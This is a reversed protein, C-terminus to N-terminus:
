TETEEDIAEDDEIFLGFNIVFANIEETISKGEGYAIVKITTINFILENFIFVHEDITTNKLQNDIYYEVKEVEFLETENVEVEISIPGIILAEYDVDGLFPSIDFIPSDWLYFIGREPKKIISPPKESVIVTVIGVDYGGNNDTINYSFVDTGVFKQDPTYKIINGVIEVTGNNPQTQIKNLVITDGDIDKDNFLADIVNDTSNEYVSEIDNVAVPPHNVHIVYVDIYVTATSYAGNGDSINYVFSDSGNYSLDPNYIIIDSNISVNGHLPEVEIGEITLVDEDVDNDNELVHIDVSTNVPTFATDDVAVPNDNVAEVYITAEATDQELGDSIRYVLADTGTYNEDPSYIITDGDIYADGHYPGSDVSVLTLTDDDEDTDNSLVELINDTSDELVNYYDDNAVPPLNVELINVYITAVDKEELKDSIMYEFSDQGTFGPNPTYYVYDQSYTITGNEPDSVHEIKIEDGLDEDVDNELVNLINDFSDQLVNYYDNNAVPPNNVPKPLVTVSATDNDSVPFEQTISSVLFGGVARALNDNVGTNIALADFEIRITDGINFNEFKWLLMSQNDDPQHPTANGNYSLIDPLVDTIVLKTFNKEGTNEVDIRFRVTENEEIVTTEEWSTTSKDFVKKEITLLANIDDPNTLIHVTVSQQQILSIEEISREYEHLNIELTDIEQQYAAQEAELGEIEVLMHQSLVTNSEVLNNLDNLQSAFDSSSERLTELAINHDNIKAELETKTIQQENLQVNLVQRVEFKSDKLTMLGSLDLNATTLDDNATQLEQNRQIIEAEIGSKQELLSDLNQEGQDINQLAVELEASIMTLEAQKSSLTQGQGAIFVTKVNVIQQSEGIQIELSNLQEEKAAKLSTLEAITAEQSQIDAEFQTKQLTYTDINAELNSIAVISIERQSSLEDLNEQLSTKTEQNIAKLAQINDLEIQHAVQSEYLATVDSNITAMQLETQAIAEELSTKESQLSAIELELTQVSVESQDLISQLNAQNAQNALIQAQIDDLAQTNVQKQSLLSSISNEKSAIQIEILEKQDEYNALQSKILSIQDALNQEQLALQESETVFLTYADRNANIDLGITTLTNEYYQQHAYLSDRDAQLSLIASNLQTEQSGLITLQQEFGTIKTESITEDNYLQSLAGQVSAVEAEAVKVEQELNLINAEKDSLLAMLDNMAQNGEFLAALLSDYEAQLALRINLESDLTLQLSYELDIQEQLLSQKTPINESIAELEAQIEAISLQLGEIEAQLTGIQLTTQDSLGQTLTSQQTISTIDNGLIIQQAELQNLIVQISAKESTAVLKQNNLESIAADSAGIQNTIINIEEDNAQLLLEQYQQDLLNLADIEATLTQQLNICLDEAATLEIQNNELALITTALSQEFTELDVNLSAIEAVAAAINGEINTKEEYLIELESDIDQIRTECEAANVLKEDLRINLNDYDNELDIQNNVLVDKQLLCAKIIHEKHIIQSSLDNILLVKKEIDAQAQIIEEENLEPEMRLITLHEQLDTLDQEEVERQSVLAVHAESEAQIEIEKEAIQSIISDIEVTKDFIKTNLIAIEANIGDFITQEQGKEGEKVFIDNVKNSLEGEFITKEQTKLPIQTNEIFVIDQQLQSQTTELEIKEQELTSQQAQATNLQSQLDSIVDTKQDIQYALESSDQYIQNNNELYEQLLANLNDNNTQEVSLQQNLSVILDIQNQLLVQNQPIQNNTSALLSQKNALAQQLTLLTDAYEQVQLSLQDIQQNKANIQTNKLDINQQKQDQAAEQQQIEQQLEAQLNQAADIRNQIGAVVAEQQQIELEKNMLEQQDFQQGSIEQQLQDYLLEYTDQIEALSDQLSALTTQKELLSAEHSSILNLTVQLALEEASKLSNIDAIQQVTTDYQLQKQELNLTKTEILIITNQLLQNIEVQQVILQEFELINQDLQQINIDISTQVNELSQSATSLDIASSEIQNELAQLEDQLQALIQEEETLSIITSDLEQRAVAEQTSLDSELSIRENLEQTTQQILNQLDQLAPIKVNLNSNIEVLNQNATQLDSELQLLENTKVAISNIDAQLTESIQLEQAALQNEQAISEEIQQTISLINAELEAFSQMAIALNSEATELQQVTNTYVTQTEQLTQADEEIQQALINSEVTLQNQLAIMSDLDAQATALEGEAIEINQTIQALETELASQAAILGQVYEQDADSSELTAQIELKINSLDQELNQALQSQESILSELNQITLGQDEIQEDLSAIELDISNINENLVLIETNIDTLDSNLSEIQGSLSTIQPELEDINHNTAIIQANLAEIEGLLNIYAAQNESIQITTLELQNAKKIYLEKMLDLEEYYKSHIEATTAVTNLVGEVTTELLALMDYEIYVREGIALEEFSVVLNNEILRHTSVKSTFISYQLFDLTDQPPLINILNVNELDYDVINELTIRFRVIEGTYVKIENSWGSTALDDPKAVQIQITLAKNGTADINNAIQQIDEISLLPTLSLSNSMGLSSSLLTFITLFIIISKAKSKRNM